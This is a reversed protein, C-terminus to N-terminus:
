ICSMLYMCTCTYKIITEHSWSIYQSVNFEPCDQLCKLIDMDMNEHTTAMTFTWDTYINYNDCLCFM